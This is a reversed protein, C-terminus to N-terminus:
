FCHGNNIPVDNLSNQVTIIAMALQATGHVAPSCARSNEEYGEGGRDRCERQLHEKFETYCLNSHPDRPIFSM